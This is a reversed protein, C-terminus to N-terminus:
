STSTPSISNVLPMSSSFIVEASSIANKGSCRACTQDHPRGPAIAKCGSLKKALRALTRDVESKQAQLQHNFIKSHFKFFQKFVILTSKQPGM